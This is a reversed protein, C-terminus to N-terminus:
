LMSGPTRNQAVGGIWPMRRGVQTWGSAKVKLQRVVDAKGFGRHDLRERHADVGRGLGADAGAVDAGHQAGSRDPQHGGKRRERGAARPDVHGVQGLFLELDGLAEARGDDRHKRTPLGQCLPHLGIGLVPAGVDDELRRARWLGRGADELREGGTAAHHHDAALGVRDAVIGARRHHALRPDLVDEAVGVDKRAADRHQRAPRDVDFRQDRAGEVELVAHRRELDRRGRRGGVDLHLDCHRLLRGGHPGARDIFTRQDDAGPRGAATLRRSLCEADGRHRGVPTAPALPRVARCLGPGGGSRRLVAAHRDLGRLEAEAAAAAETLVDWHPDNSAIAAGDDTVGRCYRAWLAEVLALGDVPRGAALGDRVSPLIFGPHRSSGDFAVRRTTDVIMPNAFRREILDLYDAPTKGPVPEVCPLIEDTEVKRFLGHILPHEMCGAITEIGLLAGANCIVQHGGNLIRIKMTEFAHVDPTFTAGARDWDPRGACFADEIVWQRFNEHTVPAEDEIGFERALALENPGTAPVICDVMANPFAGNAEIWDALAPDSLRALSVVTQRLIAGNGQLNDCSQGTFPPHGAERRAKLAAVMAGFATRPRDPHEADHRIDPHGADFGKTVPDVYYGGETVTLAVIRIAPDSMAAILPGNGDEIPLYDIMSGVIEASQGSPDLEILTTLCDQALLKERMAADYPRVGAGVIAWDQAVGEDMLRHLYWSQHARHFNGVGIHVIGPRLRSRDYRPRRVRDPLNTLTENSLRM